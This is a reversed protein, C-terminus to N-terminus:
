NNPPSLLYNAVKALVKAPAIGIGIPIGIRYSLQFKFCLVFNAPMILSLFSIKVSATTIVL